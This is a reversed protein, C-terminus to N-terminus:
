RRREDLHDIFVFMIENLASGVPLVAQQLNLATGSTHLVVHYYTLQREPPDVERRVTRKKKKIEAGIELPGLKFKSESTVDEFGHWVVLARAANLAGEPREVIRAVPLRIGRVHV